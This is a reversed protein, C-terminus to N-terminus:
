FLSNSTGLARRSEPHFSSRSGVYGRPRGGPIAIARSQSIGDAKDHGKETPQGIVELTTKSCLIKTESERKLLMQEFKFSDIELHLRVNRFFVILM